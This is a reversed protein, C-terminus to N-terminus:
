VESSRRRQGMDGMRRGSEKDGDGKGKKNEGEEGKRGEEKWSREKSRRREAEGIGIKGTSAEVAQWVERSM